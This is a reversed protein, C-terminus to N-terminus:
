RNGLPPHSLTLVPRADRDAPRGKKHALAAAAPADEGLGVVLNTLFRRMDGTVPAVAVVM